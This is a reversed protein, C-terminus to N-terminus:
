LLVDSKPIWSNRSKDFGLWKVYVKDKKRRLVKEVLFISPHRTKKLEEYYFCGKIDAGTEDKLLYTPPETNLVERVTFLETSWNPTYGKEFVGKQKSVRVVDDVKFRKGCKGFGFSTKLARRGQIKRLVANENKSTVESPRCGITRHVSENYEEVIDPLMPAWNYTGTSSFRKWMKEKLTRNFREVISAKLVSYTSYHNVKHRKFLAFCEPNYFETGNDTQLNRPVRGQSFLKGFAEAIIKGKKNKIPIAWAYKSFADIITLIYRCGSSMLQNMDVLDAQWLDDIGLLRVYRRNYNRRAPAHLEEAVDNRISMIVFM